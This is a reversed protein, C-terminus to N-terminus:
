SGLGTKPVHLYVTVSIMPHLLAQACLCIMEIWSDKFSTSKTHRPAPLKGKLPNEMSNADSRSPKLRPNVQSWIWIHSSEQSQEQSPEPSPEQSLRLSQVKSVWNPVAKINVPWSQGTRMNNNQSLNQHTDNDKSLLHKQSPTWRFTGNSHVFLAWPLLLM